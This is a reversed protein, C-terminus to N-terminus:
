DLKGHGRQEAVKGGCEFNQPRQPNFIVCDPAKGFGEGIFIGSVEGVFASRWTSFIQPRHPLLNGDLM